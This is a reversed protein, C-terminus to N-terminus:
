FGVQTSGPFAEFCDFVLDAQTCEGEFFLEGVVTEQAAQAARRACSQTPVDEISVKRVALCSQSSVIHRRCRDPRIPFHEIANPAGM